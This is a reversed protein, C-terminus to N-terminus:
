QALDDNIGRYREGPAKRIFCAIVGIGNQDRQLPPGHKHRADPAKFNGIRNQDAFAPLAQVLGFDFLNVVSRSFRKSTSSVRAAAFCTLSTRGSARM